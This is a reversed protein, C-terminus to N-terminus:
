ADQKPLNPPTWEMPHQNSEEEPPIPEWQPTSQIPPWLFMVEPMQPPPPPNMWLWLPPIAAALAVIWWILTRWLM